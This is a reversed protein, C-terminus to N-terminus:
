KEVFEHQEHLYYIKSWFFSIIFNHLYINLCRNEIIVWDLEFAYSKSNIINYVPTNYTNMGALAMVKMLM